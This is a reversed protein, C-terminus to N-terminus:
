KKYVYGYSKNIKEKKSAEINNDHLELNCCGRFAFAYIYRLSDPFTIRKLNKCDFFSFENITTIKEPIVISEITKDLCKEVTLGDESIQLLKNENTKNM